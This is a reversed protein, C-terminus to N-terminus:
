QKWISLLNVKSKTGWAEYITSVVVTEIWEESNLHSLSSYSYEQFVHGHVDSAASDSTQDANNKASYLVQVLKLGFVTEVM